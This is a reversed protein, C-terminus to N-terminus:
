RCSHYGECVLRLLLLDVHLRIVNASLRRAQQVEDTGHAQLFLERGCVDSSRAGLLHPRSDGRDIFVKTVQSDARASEIGFALAPSDQPASCMASASLTDAKRFLCHALRYIMQRTIAEVRFFIV